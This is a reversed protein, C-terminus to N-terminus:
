LEDAADSTYLLCGGTGAFFIMAFFGLMIAQIVTQFTLYAMIQKRTFPGSFLFYADEGYFLAKKSSMLTSFLMLALFAILILISTHLGTTIIMPNKDKFMFLSVFIFGYLLVVFVTFIASSPKKMLNRITGKTKLYWLYFLTKMNNVM